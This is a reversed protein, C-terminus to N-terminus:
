LWYKFQETVLLVTSAVPPHFVLQLKVPQPRAFGKLASWNENVQLANFPDLMIFVFTNIVGPSDNSLDKDFNRKKKYMHKDNYSIDLSTSFM